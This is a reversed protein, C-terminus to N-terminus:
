ACLKSDLERERKEVVLDPTGDHLLRDATGDIHFGPSFFMRREGEDAMRWNDPSMRQGTPEFRHDFLEFVPQVRVTRKYPTAVLWVESCAPIDLGRLRSVDRAVGWSWSHDHSHSKTTSFIDDAVTKSISHGTSTSASFSTGFAITLEFYDPGTGLNRHTATIRRSHGHHDWGGLVPFHCQGRVTEWPGHPKFDGVQRMYKRKPLFEGTENNFAGQVRKNPGKACLDGLLNDVEFSEQDKLDIAGPIPPGDAKPEEDAIDVMVPHDPFGALAPMEEGSPMQPRGPMDPMGPVGDMPDQAYATPATVAQGGLVVVASVTVAVARTLFVGRKRQERRM